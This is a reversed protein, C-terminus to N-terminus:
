SWEKIESLARRVSESPNRGHGRRLAEYLTTGIRFQRKAQTRFTATVLVDGNSSVLSEFDASPTKSSWRRQALTEDHLEYTV